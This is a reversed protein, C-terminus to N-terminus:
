LRRRTAREGKSTAREARSPLPGPRPPPPPMHAADPVITMDFSAGHCSERNKGYLRSNEQNQRFLVPKSCFLLTFDFHQSRIVTAVRIPFKSRGLGSNFGGFQSNSDLAMLWWYVM